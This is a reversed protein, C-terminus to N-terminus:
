WNDEIALRKTYEANDFCDELYLDVDVKYKALKTMRGYFSHQYVTNVLSWTSHDSAGTFPNTNACLLTVQESQDKCFKKWGGYGEVCCKGPYKKLRAGEEDNAYHRVKLHLSFWIGSLQYLLKYKYKAERKALLSHNDYTYPSGDDAKKRNASKDTCKGFMKKLWKFARNVPLTNTSPYLVEDQFSYRFVYYDNMNDIEVKQNLLAASNATVPYTEFISDKAWDLLFATSDIWIMSGSNLVANLYYDDCPSDPNEEYIGNDYLARMSQFGSFQSEWIILDNRNKSLLLEMVEGFCEKNSFHLMGLEFKVIGSSTTFSPPPPNSSNEMFKKSDSAQITDKKKCQTVLLLTSVSLVLILTYKKM